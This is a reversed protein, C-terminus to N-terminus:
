WQRELEAYIILRFSGACTILTLSPIVTPMLWETASPPVLHRELVRYTYWGSGDEISLTQGVQVEALHLFGGYEHGAIAVRGSSEGVWATGELAGIAAPPLAEMAYEHNEIPIFFVPKVLVDPIILVGRTGGDADAPSVVILLALLVLVWCRRVM